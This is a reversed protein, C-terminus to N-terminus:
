PPKAPRSRSAMATPKHSPDPGRRGPRGGPASAGVKGLAQDIGPNGDDFRGAPMGNVQIGTAQQGMDGVGFEGPLCQSRREVQFATHAPNLNARHHKGMWVRVGALHKIWLELQDAQRKGPAHIGLAMQIIHDIGDNAQRILAVLQM